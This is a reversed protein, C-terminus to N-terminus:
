TEPDPMTFTITNGAYTFPVAVGNNTVAIDTDPNLITYGATFQLPANVVSGISASSPGTTTCNTLRYTINGAARTVHFDRLVDAFNSYLPLDFVGHPTAYGSSDGVLNGNLFLIYDVGGYKYILTNYKHIEYGGSATGSPTNDDSRYLASSTSRPFALITYNSRYGSNNLIIQALSVTIACFELEVQSWYSRVTILGSSSLLDVYDGSNHLDVGVTTPNSTEDYSRIPLVAM